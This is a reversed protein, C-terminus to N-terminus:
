MEQGKDLGDQCSINGKYRWNRSSARTKCMRNNEEMEKYQENLFAGKVTRQFDANM